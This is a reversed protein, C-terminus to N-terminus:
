EDETASVDVVARSRKGIVFKYVMGPQLEYHEAATLVLKGKMDKTKSKVMIKYYLTEITRFGGKYGGQKEAFFSAKFIHQETFKASITIYDRLLVDSIVRIAFPVFTYYYHGLYIALTLFTIFTLPSWIIVVRGTILLVTVVVISVLLFLSFERIYPLLM